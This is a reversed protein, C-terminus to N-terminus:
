LIDIRACNLLNLSDEASCTRHDDYTRRNDEYSYHHHWSHSHGWHHRHGDNNHALATGGGLVLMGTAFAAVTLSATLKRM